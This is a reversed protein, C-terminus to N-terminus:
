DFIKEVNQYKTHMFEVANKIAKPDNSECKEILAQCANILEKAANYFDEKKPEIRKSIRSNMISDARTKLEASVEKIKDWKENPLFDHYITYLLLHFHEVQKPVPHLVRVLMEYKAHMEEAAKLLADNDSGKVAENFDNVSKKFVAVGEEWKTKKDRFFEPLAATYIKGALENVDNLTSRLGDFDKNPYHTHWVVYIVEHFNSLEPFSADVEHEKENQAFAAVGIFLFLIFLKSLTKKM